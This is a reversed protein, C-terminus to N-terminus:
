LDKIKRVPVGVYIGPEKIDKTVLSMAGIIVPGKISLPGLLVSNAGISLDGDIKFMPANIIPDEYRRGFVVGSSMHLKGSCSIGNGGLVVGTSHGIILEKIDLSSSKIEAGYLYLIFNDVVISFFRGFIPTKGLAKSLKIFLLVQKSTLYLYRLLSKLIYM